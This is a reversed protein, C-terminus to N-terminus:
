ADPWKRTEPRFIGRSPPMMKATALLRSSISDMMLSSGNQLCPSASDRMMSNRALWRASSIELRISVEQDISRTTAASRTKRKRDASFATVCSRLRYHLRWNAEARQEAKRCVAYLADADGVDVNGSSSM